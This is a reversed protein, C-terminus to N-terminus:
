HKIAISPSCYNYTDKLSPASSITLKLVQRKVDGFSNNHKYHTLSLILVHNSPGIIDAM